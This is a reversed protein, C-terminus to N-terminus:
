AACESLRTGFGAVYGTYHFQLQGRVGCSNPPHAGLQEEELKKVEEELSKLHRAVGLLNPGQLSLLVGTAAMPGSTMHAPLIAWTLVLVGDVLRADCSASLGSFPLPAYMESFSVYKQM